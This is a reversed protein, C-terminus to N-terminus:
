EIVEGIKFAKLAHTGLTEWYLFPSLGNGPRMIGINSESYLDGKNINKLAIISKRVANRNKFESDTVKKESSGLAMKASRIAVVMSRLDEPELSARHDPGEMLCDLTFHKEIILAGLAAAAIPVVIGKSHDSYGVNLGFQQRLGNMALLNIEELPAPYETTCHLLTVKEALLRQGEKSAYAKDFDCMSPHSGGLKKIYGYAVVSLTAKIEEIEAMGTSIILDCGTMAHELVFPANTLEGSPIKLTTLNLDKHLFRLSESDFATSLFEIGKSQSYQQLKSFQEQTLELRKLMSYQSENAATQEAQYKAKKASETVLSDSVYTQFKVADAEAYVAADILKYALDINGNHNVGAEAIIYVSM